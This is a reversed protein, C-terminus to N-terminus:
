RRLLVFSGTNGSVAAEGAFIRHNAIEV